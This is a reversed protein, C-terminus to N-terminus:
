GRPPTEMRALEKIARKALPSLDAANADLHAYIQNRMRPEWFKRMHEAAMAVAEDEGQVALNRVIQNAMMVLKDASRM